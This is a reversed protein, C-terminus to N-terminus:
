TVMQWTATTIGEVSSEQREQEKTKLHELQSALKNLYSESTSVKTSIAELERKCEEMAENLAKDGQSITSLKICKMIYATIHRVFDHWATRFKQTLTTM